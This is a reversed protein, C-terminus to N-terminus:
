AEDHKLELLRGLTERHEATVTPVSGQLDLRDPRLFGFSRLVEIAGAPNGKNWARALAHAAAPALRDVYETGAERLAIEWAESARWRELQRRSRGVHGAVQEWTAHPNAWRFEAASRLLDAPFAVDQAGNRGAAKM